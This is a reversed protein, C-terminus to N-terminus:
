PVALASVNYPARVQHWGTAAVYAGMKTTHDTPNQLATRLADFDGHPVADVLHRVDSIMVNDAAVIPRGAALYQRISGSTSIAGPPTCYWVNVDCKSLESVVTDLPLHSTEVHIWDTTAARALVAREYDTKRRLHASSAYIHLTRNPMSECVDIIQLICKHPKFFGFCGIHLKGDQDSRKLTSKRSTQTAHPVVAVRQAGMAVLAAKADECHVILLDCARILLRQTDRFHRLSRFDYDPQDPTWIWGRGATDIVEPKKLKWRVYQNLTPLPVVSHLTVCLQISNRKCYAVIAKLEPMGYIGFEHQVHLHTPHLNKRALEDLSKVMPMGQAASLMEAYTAIGCARGLSSCYQVILPTHSNVLGLM